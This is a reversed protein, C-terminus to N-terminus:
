VAKDIKAIAKSALDIIKTNRRREHNDGRAVIGYKDHITDPLVEATYSFNTTNGTIKTFLSCINQTGSSVYYDMTSKGSKIDKDVKDLIKRIDKPLYKLDDKIEGSIYEKLNWGYRSLSSVTDQCSVLKKKKATYFSNFIDKGGLKVLRDSNARTVGVFYAPKDVELLDFTKLYHKMDEAFSYQTYEM